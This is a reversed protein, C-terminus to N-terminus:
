YHKLIRILLITTAIVGIILGLFKSGSFFLSWGVVSAIIPMIIINFDFPLRHIKTKDYFVEVSQGPRLFTVLYRNSHNRIKYTMDKPIYGLDGEESTILISDPDYENNDLGLELQTDYELRKYNDIRWTGDDNQYNIGRIAFTGIQVLDEENVTTEKQM